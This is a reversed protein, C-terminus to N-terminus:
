KSRNKNESETSNGFVMKATYYRCKRENIHGCSYILANLVPIGCLIEIKKGHILKYRKDNM